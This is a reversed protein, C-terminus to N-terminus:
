SEGEHGRGAALAAYLQEWDSLSRQWDHSAIIQLSQAAMRDRLAPDAILASLHAAAENARGPRFLFGNRGHIVLEGLAFADAAVVPLRSAMANMTTLSQLEAESAIAFVQALRHLGPLDTDPVFGIFRVAGSIGLKRARARLQAEQPGSGALVLQAPQTLRAAADILVDVRKEGSLRGVSLILPVDDRLGYRDRLRNEPPGPPGPLYTLSDVGNSIIRSPSRLGQERLLGLATATPATVQNCRNSFRVIYSYFFADFAAPRRRMAPLVNAPLYHNTYIVPIKLRVAAMRALVGLVLPSHTHIVDPASAAILARVAAASARAIRMGKYPPWPVSGLYCVGARGEAGAGGHWTGSPALVTVAHGRAALGAALARTVTPVGGVMPPYQDTVLVIRLASTLAPSM